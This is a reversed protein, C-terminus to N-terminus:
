DRPLEWGKPWPLEWQSLLRDWDVAALQPHMLALVRSLESQVTRYSLVGPGDRFSWRLGDVSFLWWHAACEACLGSPAGELVWLAYDLRVYPQAAVCTRHCRPCPTV